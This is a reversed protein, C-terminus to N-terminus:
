KLWLRRVPDFTVSLHRLGVSDGFNVTVVKDRDVEEVGTVTGKGFYQHDSGHLYNANEAKNEHDWLWGGSNHANKLPVMYNIDLSRPDEVHVGTFAGYWRGTAVECKEDNKFTVEM